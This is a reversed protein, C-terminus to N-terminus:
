KNSYTSKLSRISSTLNKKWGDIWYKPFLEDDNGSRLLEGLIMKVENSTPRTAIDNSWMRTILNRIAMPWSDDIAPRLGGLIVETHFNNPQVRLFPKTLSLTEHLVLQSYQNTVCCSSTQTSM